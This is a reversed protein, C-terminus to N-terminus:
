DTKCNRDEFALGKITFEDNEGFVHVQQTSDLYDIHCQSEWSAKILSFFEGDTKPKGKRKEKKKPEEEEEADVEKEDDEKACGLALAAMLASILFIRSPIM